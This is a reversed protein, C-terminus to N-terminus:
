ISLLLKKSKEIEKNKAINMNNLLKNYDDININNINNILESYNNKFTICPLNYEKQKFEPLIIPVNFSYSLSLSGTFSYPYHWTKRGLIFLSKELYKSMTIMDRKIDKNKRKTFYIIQYKINKEFNKLDDDDDWLTGIQLIYKKESFKINNPVSYFPFTYYFKKSKDNIKKKFENMQFPYLAIYNQIYPSKRHYAHIIGFTKSKINQFISPLDKTMTIVYVKDYKKYQTIFDNINNKKIKGFLMEFYNVYQYIDNDNYFLTINHDKFIELLYGIVELHGNISNYIAINM